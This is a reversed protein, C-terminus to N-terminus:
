RKGYLVYSALMLTLAIMFLDTFFPNDLAYRMPEGALIVHNIDVYNSLSGSITSLDPTDLNELAGSIENLDSAQDEVQDKLQDAPATDPSLVEILAAFNLDLNDNLSSFHIVTDSRFDDIYQKVNLSLESFWSGLDSWITRLWYVSSDPNQSLIYGSAQTLGFQVSVNGDSGSSPVYGTVYLMCAASLDRSYETFDLRVNFASYSHDSDNGNLTQVDVPIMINGVYASVSVINLNRAFFIFDSYDYTAADYLLNFHFATDELETVPVSVSLSGPYNLAQSSSGYYFYGTGTLRVPQMGVSKVNFSEVYVLSGLSGSFTLSLHDFNRPSTLDLHARYYTGSNSYGIETLNLNAQLLVISSLSGSKCFVVLDLSSVMIDSPFYWSAKYTSTSELSIFRSNPDAIDSRAAYDFISNWTSFEAAAVPSGLCMFVILCVCFLSIFRKM